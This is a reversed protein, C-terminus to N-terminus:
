SRFEFHSFRFHFSEHREPAPAAPSDALLFRRVDIHELYLIVGFGFDRLDWPPTNTGM